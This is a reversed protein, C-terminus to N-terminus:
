PRYGGYPNGSGDVYFVVSYLVKGDHGRYDCNVRNKGSDDFGPPYHRKLLKHLRNVMAKIDKPDTKGYTGEALETDPASNSTDQVIIDCAFGSPKALDAHATFASTALCAALALRM